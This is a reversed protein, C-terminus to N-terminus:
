KGSIYREYEATGIIPVDLCKGGLAAYTTGYCECNCTLGEETWVYGADNYDKQIENYPVGAFHGNRQWRAINKLDPPSFDRGGLIVPKEGPSCLSGFCNVVAPPTESRPNFYVAAPGGCQVLVLGYSVLLLVSLAFSRWARVPPNKQCKMEVEV